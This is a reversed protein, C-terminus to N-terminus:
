STPRQSTNASIRAAATPSTRVSTRFGGPWADRAKIPHRVRSPQGLGYALVRKDVNDTHLDFVTNDQDTAARDDRYYGNAEAMGGDELAFTILDDVQDQSLQAQKLSIETGVQTGIEYDVYIAKGDDYLTFWPPREVTGGPYPAMTPETSLRLLVREADAIPTPTPSQTSDASPISEMTQEVQTSCGAVVVLATMVVSAWRLMGTVSADARTAM